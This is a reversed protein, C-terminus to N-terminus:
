LHQMLDKFISWVHSIRRDESLKDKCCTTPLPPRDRQDPRVPTSCSHHVVAAAHGLTAAAGRLVAGVARSADSKPFQLPGLGDRRFFAKQESGPRREEVRLPQGPRPWTSAFIKLIRFERIRFNQFEPFPGNQLGVKNEVEEKM